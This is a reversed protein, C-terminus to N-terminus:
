SDLILRHGQEAMWDFQRRLDTVRYDGSRRKRESHRILTLNELDEKERIHGLFKSPKTTIILSMKTEIKQLKKRASMSLM